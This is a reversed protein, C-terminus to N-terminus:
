AAELLAPLEAVTALVIGAQRMEELATEIDGDTLDIGRSADLLVIVKYGRAVADLATEKVCINLALGAVVVVDVEKARLRADLDTGRFGSFAEVDIRTGKLIVLDALARVAPDIEAGRSDAVGHKPFPGGNEIFSCHNEPHSDGTAVVFDVLGAARVIPERVEDGEPVALPGGPMFDPQVDVAILATKLM